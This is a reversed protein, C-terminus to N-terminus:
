TNYTILNSHDTYGRRHAFIISNNKLATDLNRNIDTWYGYKDIDYTKCGYRSALISLVSQDHRHNGDYGDICGEIQSYDWGEKIIHTYAGDTKFGVLGSWLQKDNLEDDTANTIDICKQHTYNKNIHVDGVLFIDEKDIIDFIPQISDLACAGADLWIVKKALLISDFLTFMKLFHCKTKVTSISDYIAFHNSIHKVIVKKYTKLRQIESADLGFDYVIIADIIDYSYRHISNILTLLSTFYPSNAGTIVINNYINM